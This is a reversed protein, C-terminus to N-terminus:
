EVYWGGGVSQYLTILSTLVETRAQVASLEASLLSRQADLQELYPSYGARYRRSSLALVQAFEDRQAEIAAAQRTTHDVAALADEVERFASLVTKRYAFAAQNRRSAAADQQANLRGSDFLPTLISGGLSFIGIPNRAILTSRVVGGSGMLQVSPMFAARAADLSHDAAVLQQEAQLIDPRRRLL